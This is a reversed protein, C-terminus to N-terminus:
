FLVRSSQRLVDKVPESMTKFRTTTYFRAGPTKHRSFYTDLATKIIETPVKYIGVGVKKHLFGMPVKYIGIYAHIYKLYEWEVGVKKYMLGIPIKYIGVGLKKHLLGMPVTYFGVGVNKYLLGMPVKYIGM